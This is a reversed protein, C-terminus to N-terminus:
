KRVWERWIKRISRGASRPVPRGGYRVAEYQRVFALLADRDGLKSVPRSDIYERVTQGPRRAGLRRFLRRWMKDFARYRAARKGGGVAEAYASSARRTHRIRRLAILGIPAALLAIAAAAPDIPPLALSRRLEAGEGRLRQLAGTFGSLLGTIAGGDALAAKRSHEDPQVAGTGFPSSAGADPQASAMAPEAAGETRGPTPDFLTWGRGPMYAEVWSHADRNRVTVHIMQGAADGGTDAAAGPDMGTTGGDETVEGPAFGKVWRAPIGTSRLLVVMATSFYDCYGEKSEFLFYDAFDVATDPVPEVDMRYRYHRQLFTEIAKARAYDDPLGSVLTRALLKVREPVTAPLQLEAQFVAPDFSAPAHEAQEEKAAADAEADTQSAATEEPGEVGEHPVAVKLRYYYLPDGADPAAVVLSGGERVLTGDPALPRGSRASMKEVQRVDGGAFLRDAPAAGSLIVEQIITDTQGEEELRDSTGGSEWGKGTYVTRFAGRWYTLQETRAVFAVTDDPRVPGGLVRDDDGFGTRAAATRAPDAAEPDAGASWSAFRAGWEDAHLPKMVGTREKPALWLGAAVTAASVLAAVALWGFPWGAGRSRLAFRRELRKIQLVGTLLLGIWVTRIIAATTDIGPWLQLGLLYLLTAAAFWLPRQREVVSAYIVSIMMSWGFLFLLTRSEASVYGFDRDVIAAADKLALGAYEMFWSVPSFPGFEFLVAVIVFCAALRLPWGIWPSLRLWEAAVFLGFAILFPDIRYIGSWAAMDLLPRLWEALLAFLLAAAILDRLRSCEPSSM